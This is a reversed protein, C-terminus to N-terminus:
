HAWRDLWAEVAVLGHIQSMSGILATPRGSLLEELKARDLLGRRALQGELVMSRVFELNASLITKLHEEMGGKTRRSAIQPPLENAFAQRALARGHGGRILVYTPLQLTLEVLPQSLLPHVIQPAAEKELPDYCGVPHMLAVTQMFKGIPLQDAGRLAPHAFRALDLAHQQADRSLLESTGSPRRALVDHRFWESLASAIARWVSVRGLRAADMAAGPFGADLGQVQLYDAAPWWQLMEYFVADGGAGTFLAPAAYSSALAADTHANMRGVYFVPDPMRAAQLICEIRFGPDRVSWCIAVPTPQQWAPM